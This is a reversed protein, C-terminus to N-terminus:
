ITDNYIKTTVISITRIFLFNANLKNEVFKELVRQCKEEFFFYERTV